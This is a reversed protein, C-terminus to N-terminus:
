AAGDRPDALAALLDSVITAVVICAGIVLTGGLVVPADGRSSADIILAGVGHLGFAREVVLTAGLLYTVITTFLAGLPAAAVALAHVGLVRADSAGRARAAIAFPRAGADVLGARGHRAVVAAAVYSLTVIPLLLSDSPFWQFPRGAVFTRLALIAAWAPPLAVALATSANIARDALGAPRAASVLAALVGAAYALLISLFLLGLTTPLARVVLTSVPTADPRWSRGLDGHALQVVFASLRAARSARLGHREAAVALLDARAASSLRTDDSPYSGSARAAALVPGGPALELCGWAVIALLLLTVAARVARVILRRAVGPPM